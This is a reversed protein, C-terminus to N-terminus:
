LSKTISSKDILLKRGCSAIMTKVGTADEIEKLDAEAGQMHLKMGIHTMVMIEPNIDRVLRIANNTNLHYPIRNKAPRTISLILVRAGEHWKQLDPFFQTDSIYSVVGASTEFRFGITSPDSHMTPTGTVELDEILTKEGPKLLEIRELADFYRELIIRSDSNIVSDSAVITGRKSTCGNTMAEIMINADNCHDIHSHSVLLADLERPDLGNEWSKLLAGPGPDVHVKVGDELFFGGTYRKQTITMFRGGGSGLFILKVM